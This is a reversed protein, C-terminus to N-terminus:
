LVYVVGEDQRAAEDIQADRAMQAASKRSKRQPRQRTQRPGVFPNDESQDVEPVRASADTYIAIANGNREAPEDEYLEFGTMTNANSRRQKQLQRPSPMVDNLHSPQFNLIRATSSVAAQRKKPTKSPTPLM